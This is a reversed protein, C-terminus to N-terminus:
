TNFKRKRGREQFGEPKRTPFSKVHLVCLPFIFSLCAFLRPIERFVWGSLCPLSPFRFNM